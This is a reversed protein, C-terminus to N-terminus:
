DTRPAALLVSNCQSCLAPKCVMICVTASVASSVTCTELDHKDHQKSHMPQQAGLLVLREARRLVEVMSSLITRQGPCVHPRAQLIDTAILCALLNNLTFSSHNCSLDVTAVGLGLLLAAIDTPAISTRTISNGEDDLFWGDPFTVPISPSGLEGAQM